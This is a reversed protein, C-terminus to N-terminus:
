SVTWVVYQVILVALLVFNWIRATWILTTNRFRKDFASAALATGIVSPGYLFFLVACGFSQADTPSGLARYLSGSITFPYLLTSWAALVIAGIALNRRKPSVEEDGAKDICAPCFHLGNPMLFDCTACVGNNCARCLAVANSDSHQTCM